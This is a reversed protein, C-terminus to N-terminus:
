AISEVTVDKAQLILSVVSKAIVVNRVYSWGRKMYVCIAHKVYLAACRVISMVMRACVIHQMAIVVNQVTYVM